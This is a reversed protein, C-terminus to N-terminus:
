GGMVVAQVGFQEAVDRAFVLPAPGHVPWVRKPVVTRIVDLLDYYDAHDSLPSMLTAQQSARRSELLAWGSVYCIRATPMRGTIQSRVYPPIVWARRERRRDSQYREINGFSYGHRRYIETIHWMSGHILMPIEGEALISMIEQGKGLAYGLFIPTLGDALCQRAFAVMQAATEQEPPFRFHPLGFTCEILLDDAPEFRAPECTRGPRTKMDGTYLLRLGDAREILTQSSGLIHGAPLLKMRWDGFNHWSDYPVQVIEGVHGRVRLLDATAPTAFVPM